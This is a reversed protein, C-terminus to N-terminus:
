GEEYDRYQLWTDIHEDVDTMRSLHEPFKSPNTITHKGSIYTSLSSYPYSAVYQRLTKFDKPGRERWSPDKIKASNLHIYSFLYRAYGDRDVHKAKFTGQFLAGSRNYKENFYMTYATQLRQMFKSVGGDQVPTMYLHFHNPMLCFAGIAVLPVRTDDRSSLDPTWDKRLFNDTRRNGVDNLLFLYAMFRRYEDRSMFVVRKDVGRNYIHYFEGEAFTIRRM